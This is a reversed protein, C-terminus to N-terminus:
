LKNSYGARQIFNCAFTQFLSDSYRFSIKAPHSPLTHAKMGMSLSKSLLPNSGRKAIPKRSHKGHKALVKIGSIFLEDLCSFETIKIAQRNRVHLLSIAESTHSLVLNTRTDLPCKMTINSRSMQNKKQMLFLRKTSRVSLKDM